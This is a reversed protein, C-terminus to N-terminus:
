KKYKRAIAGWIDDGNNLEEKLKKDWASEEKKKDEERSCDIEYEASKRSSTKWEDVMSLAEDLSYWNGNGDTAVGETFPQLPADSNTIALILEENPVEKVTVKKPKYNKMDEDYKNHLSKARATILDALQEISSNQIMELSSVTMTWEPSHALRLLLAHDYVSYEWYVGLKECLKYLYEETSKNMAMM